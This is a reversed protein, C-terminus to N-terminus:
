RCIRSSESCEPMQNAQMSHPMELYAEYDAKMSM